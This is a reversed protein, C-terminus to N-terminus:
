ILLISDEVKGARNDFAKEATERLKRLAEGNVSKKENIIYSKLVLLLAMTKAQLFPPFDPFIIM